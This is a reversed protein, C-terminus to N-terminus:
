LWIKKQSRAPAPRGFHRIFPSYIIGGFQSNRTGASGHIMRERWVMTRWASSIIQLEFASVPVAIKM